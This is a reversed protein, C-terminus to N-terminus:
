LSKLIKNSIDKDQSHRIRRNATDPRILFLKMSPFPKLSALSPIQGVLVLEAKSGAVTQSQQILCHSVDGAIKAAWYM